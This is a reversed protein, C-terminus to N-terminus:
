CWIDMMCRRWLLVTGCISRLSINLCPYDVHTIDRLHFNFLIVRLGHVITNTSSKGQFSIVSNRAETFKLHHSVLILM